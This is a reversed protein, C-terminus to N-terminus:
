KRKFKDKEIFQFHDTTIKEKHCINLMENHTYFKDGSGHRSKEIHKFLHRWEIGTQPTFHDSYAKYFADHLEKCTVTNDKLVKQLLGPEYQNNWQGGQRTSLVMKGFSEFFARNRFSLEKEAVRMEVLGQEGPMM